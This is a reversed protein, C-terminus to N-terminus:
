GSSTIKHVINPRVVSIRPVVGSKTDITDYQQVSPAFKSDKLTGFSTDLQKDGSGKAKGANPDSYKNKDLHGKRYSVGAKTMLQDMEWLKQYMEPDYMDPDYNKDGPPIGMKHWDSSSTTKYADIMDYPIKNDKYIGGRKIATDLDKLSSPKTTPDASLLDRKVKLVALNTDYQGKELYATDEGSESVGKTIVKQVDAVQEPTLDEGRAIQAQIKKDVLGMLTKDKLVGYQNLQKYTDNATNQAQQVSQQGQPQESGQAGFATAIPNPNHLINGSDDTAPIKNVANNLGPIGGAIADLINHIGDKTTTDNKTDDTMKSIENLLSGVPTGARVLSAVENKVWQKGGRGEMGDIFNVVGATPSLDQIGDVVGKAIEAPSNKNIVNAPIVLPLALAGFYGPINFWNGGINISNPQIGEAKWRAKEAPDSPYSPSIHGSKALVTGLAYLSAGSGAHVKADYIADAAAQADGKAFKTGASILDPVGLTARKAGGVLSRGIVTPFGVTLRVVAKAATQALKGHGNGALWGAMQQEFKKSHALGSLANEKLAWEEYHRAMNDPDSHLMVETDRALQDGKVGQAKLQNEYYHYARASGVAKINGEGLTNGTTSWQKVVKSLKNQDLENRANFDTVVSRNGVKNGIKAGAGKYGGGLRGFVSNELRVLSTNVFNRAFTGTGSLMSSDIWDMQYVGADKEAQQVAKLAVPDKNGKLVQNAVRYETILAHKEAEDAAQRAQKWANFDAASKTANYRDLAQNAADRAAVFSNDAQSVMNIHADTVKSGDEVVGYLKSVFRNTLQDGTATRRMVPNFLSLGRGYDSGAGYLTKAMARYEPSTQPFRGSDLMAQLNRVSEPSVRGGQAIEQNAKNIVDGSSLTATDSAAQAAETSGHAVESVNGNEGVRYENTHVFGASTTPTPNAADARAAAAAIDEQTKAYKKALKAQNRAAAVQRKNYQKPNDLVAQVEKPLSAPPTVVPANAAAQTKVDNPSVQTTPRVTGPTEPLGTPVVTEDRVPIGTAQKVTIPRGESVPTQDLLSQVDPNAADDFPKQIEPHAKGARLQREAEQRWAAKTMRKGGTDGFRVNNSARRGDSTIAVGNGEGIDKLFTAYEDILDGQSAKVKNDSLKFPTTKRPTVGEINQDPRGPAQSEYRNAARQAAAEEPTPIRVQGPTDGGLERIPTGPRPVGVPIPTNGGGTQTVPIQTPPATLEDLQPNSLVNGIEGTDVVDREATPMTRGNILRTVGTRASRFPTILPQAVPTAKNSVARGTRSVVNEPNSTLPKNIVRSFRGAQGAGETATSGGLTLLGALINLPIQERRYVQAGAAAMPVAKEYGQAAKDLNRNVFDFPKDVVSTATDVGRNVTSLARNIRSDDGAIKRPVYTVAHTALSPIHAAGQVLGSGARVAALGVEPVNAVSGVATEAATKLGHGIKDFVNPKNVIPAVPAPQHPQVPQGPRIVTGPQPKLIPALDPTPNVALVNKPQGLPALNNHLGAFLNEPRQATPTQSQNDSLNNQVPRANPINSEDQKKKRAAQQRRQVEGSRNWPTIVDLARTFISAM